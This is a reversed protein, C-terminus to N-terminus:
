IVVDEPSDNSVYYKSCYNNPIQIWANIMISQNHTYIDGNTFM